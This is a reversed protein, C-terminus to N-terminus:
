GHLPFALPSIVLHLLTSESTLPHMPHLSTKKARLGHPPGIGKQWPPFYHTEKLYKTLFLYLHGFTCQPPPPPAHNAKPEARSSALSLLPRRQWFYSLSPSRGHALSLLTCRPFFTSLSLSIFFEHAEKPPTRLKIKEEKQM